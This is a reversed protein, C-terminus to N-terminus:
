RVCRVSSHVNHLYHHRDGTSFRQGYAVGDGWPTSSWYAGATSGTINFTGKLSGKNQNENLVNLEERTPVRWDNHGLYNEHNLKKAYDAAENFTMTLNIGDDNKTDQPAAYIKKGDLEGAYITQDGLVDGIQLVTAVATDNASVPGITVFGKTAVHLRGDAAVTVNAGHITVSDFAEGIAIPICTEQTAFAEETSDHQKALKVNKFTVVNGEPSIEAVKEGNISVTAPGDEEISLQIKKKASEETM